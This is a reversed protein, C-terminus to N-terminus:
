RSGAGNKVIFDVLQQAARREEDSQALGLAQRADKLAEDRRGMRWHNQARATYTPAYRPNLKTARELAEEIKPLAAPDVTSNGIMLAAWRYSTYFNQSGLAIAHEYAVRAEDRKGDGDLMQGELDYPAALQADAKKAADILARAEATRQMSVHFAAQAGATEAPSLPRVAFGERKVSLDINYRVYSFIQRTIYLRFGRELATLDGFAVEAAGAPTQGGALAQAFRDLQARHSGEDAFMLYHVLAWCEADLDARTDQQAYFPSSTTVEFLDGVPLRVRERLRQLHFPIPRGVELHTDRVITNSMVETLGLSFWLPLQRQRNARLMLAFYSWYAGRYPNMTGQSDSGKLDARLAIYHRDPASVFVSAPHVSGKQEWYRPALARMGGEDSTALVLLPRDLDPQAWGSFSAAAARIQELEWVIARATRDGADSDITFHGSTVEIWAREAAVVPRGAALSALLAAALCAHRM